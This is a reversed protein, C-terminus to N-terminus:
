QHRPPPRDRGPKRAPAAKTYVWRGGVREWGELNFHVFQIERATRLRGELARLLDHGEDNQTVERNTSGDLVCLRGSLFVRGASVRIGIKGADIKLRALSATTNRRALADEEGM